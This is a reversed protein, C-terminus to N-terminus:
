QYSGTNIAMIEPADDVCETCVLPEIFGMEETGMCRGRYGPNTRYLTVEQEENTSEGAWEKIRPVVTGEKGDSGEENKEAEYHGAEHLL